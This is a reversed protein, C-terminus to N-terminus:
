LSAFYVYIAVLVAALTMMIFLTRLSIRWSHKHLYWVIVGPAIFGTATTGIMFLISPLPYTYAYYDYIGHNKTGLGMLANLAGFFAVLGGGLMLAATGVVVGVNRLPKLM